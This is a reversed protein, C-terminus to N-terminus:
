REIICLFVTTRNTINHALRSFRMVTGNTDPVKKPDLHYIDFLFVHFWNIRRRAKTILVDKTGRTGKLPKKM